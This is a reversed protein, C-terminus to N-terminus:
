LVRAASSTAWSLNVSKTRPNRLRQKKLILLNKLRHPAISMPFLNKLLLPLMFLNLLLHKQKLKDVFNKAKGLFVSLRKSTNSSKSPTPNAAHAETKPEEIKPEETKPEEAKFSETKPEEKTEVKSEEPVVTVPETPPPLVSAAETIVPTPATTESM